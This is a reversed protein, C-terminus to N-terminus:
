PSQDLKFRDVLSPLDRLTKFQDHLEIQKITTVTWSSRLMVQSHGCWASNGFSTDQFILFMELCCGFQPDNQIVNDSNKGLFFLIYGKKTLQLISVKLKM